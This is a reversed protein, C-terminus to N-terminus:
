PMSPPSSLPSKAVLSSRWCKLAQLPRIFGESRPSYDHDDGVLIHHRVDALIRQQLLVVFTQEVAFPQDEEAPFVMQHKGRRQAYRQRGGQGEACENTVHQRLQVALMRLELVNVPLAREPEVRGFAENGIDALRQLVVAQRVLRQDSETRRCKFACSSWRHVVPTRFLVLVVCCLRVCVELGLWM